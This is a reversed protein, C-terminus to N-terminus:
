LALRVVTNTNDICDFMPATAAVIAKATEKYIGNSEDRKKDRCQPKTHGTRGCYSCESKGAKNQQVRELQEKLWGECEHKRHGPQKCHYCKGDNPKDSTAPKGHKSYNGAFFAAVKMREARTESDLEAEVALLKSRVTSFTLEEEKLTNIMIAVQTRSARNLGALVAFMMESEKVDLGVAKMDNYMTRADSLYAAVTSGTQRLEAM